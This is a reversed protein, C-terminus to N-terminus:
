DGDGAADESQALMAEVEDASLDAVQALLRQLPDEEEASQDSPAQQAERVAVALGEVTPSAFFTALTLEVDFSERLRALVRTALLSDGGLEFFTHTVGVETVGLLERWLTALREEVEDRPAVVEGGVGSSLDLAIDALAKRAIKGNGTLPMANLYRLLTPVMYDPLTARLFDALEDPAPAEEENEAVVFAALYRGGRPPGAAVVAARRIAPHRQLAAEVEGLEIRYGRVKVQHDERGLFELTGDPLRRGLDGTYYLREGTRPHELFQAATREEDGMYGRAVGVGGIYLEGPVWLPRPELAEDLVHFTQGGMPRGYPVSPWAPDVEDIPYLISWISAETAGGLSVVQVESGFCARIRDPLTVPIWDGSMMVLRLHGGAAAPSGAEAAGQGELHDVLMEMLAPVTNWVTVRHREMLQVWAAPERREEAGPIVVAGGAGFIGFLDWVSLDFALSSLALVRDEPGVAFRHGIDFLTNLAARHEIMVGKPLGTSGSTFIVYALDEPRASPLVADEDTSEPLSVLGHDDAGLRVLSLAEGDASEWESDLDTIAVEVGGHAALLARRQPPLEPGAPLYAAGCRLVALTAVASRWGAPVTVMVLDGAEVGLRVLERALRRSQSDVMEYSLEGDGAIVASRQPAASARALFPQHLLAELSEVGYGGPDPHSPLPASAGTDNAAAVIRLHEAPVLPPLSGLWPDDASVGEAGDDSADPADALAQLLQGYAGFLLKVLGEPFATEVVDWATELAGRTEGVQHDLLVQPTQSIGFDEEDEAAVEAPQESGTSSGGGQDGTLAELGPVSVGLTSTFVIPMAADGGPGGRRRALERQVEVGSVYRHELDELLRRQLARARVAFSEGQGEVALLTLSTFDGIVENVQPHLPLRNFLTLNLTMPRARSWLALVESFAALLLGSPTLGTTAARAKLRGWREASLIAKHRVFRQTGAEAERARPLQPALPLDDLRQWWYDKAREYLATERLSQEALVYDRFSLELPPLPAELDLYYAALDKMMLSFSWADAILIDFSWHLRYGAGDRTLRLDFLPWSGPDPVRHAMESRLGELRRHAAATPLTRLDVVEMEYGPVTELIRQRGDELIVARLMEHRAVVRRWAQEMREVEIAPGLPLEEYVHTAVGGLEFAGSRGLWYAQQVDTLPFPEHRQALDTVVAPLEQNEEETPPAAEAVRAALRAVTPAELVEGLPVAAGLDSRLRAVLQTLLLSHGGLEFFDDHRGVPQVGLLEGWLAALREEGEGEPAAFPVALEPRPAAALAPVTAAQIAAPELSSPESSSSASLSSPVDLGAGEVAAPAALGVTPADLWLRQRQFPYTPLPIRRRTESDYVRQWDVEAGLMWLEGLAALAVADATASDKAGPLCAVVPVERAEPLRRALRGLGAGPGVELLALDPEELLAGVGDAFRVPRRLHDAWYAPDQAEEATIWTGSRNSVFPIEPAALEVAAVAERFPEVAPEVLRSHFAHSTHLRRHSVGTEELHAALAEIAAGDGTAVVARPANVAAIELEEQKAGDNEPALKSVIELLEAETLEASLMAGEGPEATEALLRGRLAVLRGADELSFVGAVCAATLEGLSHGLLASPPVGWEMWLQALAWEVVFLAPQAVDTSRLRAASDDADVPADVSADTSADPWLLSRLSRGDPQQFHPEVAELAEDLLERFREETDYLERAMGPVQAGQGPFLFAVAPPSGARRRRLREPEAGQLLAAPDEGPGMVLARRWPLARRGRALTFALDALELSGGDEQQRQCFEGLGATGQELAEASNASLVVLQHERQTPVAPLAPPAEEVVAHVNTGGIGFSSVGARRPKAGNQAAPWAGGEKELRFPTTELRLKPSPADLEPQPPRQGAEMAGLINLLGAVGAATDLHGLNAKVSGLAISGPQARSGDEEEAGFVQALASAEIPDGLETGTGHAEVYDVSAASIGALALAGQVAEAQGSVTPVTYGARQAGDNTVATGRVVGWVRDGDELADRLRRLVVVAAGSGPVTGAAAAAFPRCRGDPSSIGGEAYLYGSGQPLTISVGGALALDCDFGALSQCALHVAVLSTSCATQVTMVPGTLGLRYAAQTTLHDKDNGIVAQFTGVAAVAQPHAALHLQAYTNTGAGGFLGIPGDFTEPDHGATELAEWCVELFLRHQPDTVQAERPTYGFLAPDFGEVHERELSGRAPVYAPDDAVQPPVGAALLEDRDFRRILVEGQGLRRWLTPVDPAGPFRGSFGVVAIDTERLDREELLQDILEARAEAAEQRQPSSPSSSHPSDDQWSM